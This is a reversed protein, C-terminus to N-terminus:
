KKKHILGPKTGNPHCRACSTKTELSHTSHCDFCSLGVHEDRPTRDDSTGIQHYASPAHCQYCVRIRKDTSMKVANTGDYVQPQPLAALPFFLHERRDFFGVAPRAANLNFTDNTGLPTLAEDPHIQHCTLCTMVPRDALKDSVLKWPGKNNIPTVIDDVRGEFYMGHCRLCDNHPQEISNHETNLFAQSYTMNHHSTKNDAADAEHCEQCQQTVSLLQEENLRVLALDTSAKKEYTQKSFKKHIKASLPHQHCETCAIVDHPSVLSVKPDHRLHCGKCTKDPAPANQAMVISSWLVVLLLGAIHSKVILKLLPNTKM